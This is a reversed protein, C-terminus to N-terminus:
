VAAIAVGIATIIEESTMCANGFHQPLAACIQATAPDGNYNITFTDEVFNVNGPNGLINAIRHKWHIQAVLNLNNPPCYTLTTIETSGLDALDHTLAQQMQNACPTNTLDTCGNSQFTGMQNAISTLTLPTGPNTIITKELIWITGTDPRYLVLHDPKGTSNYDFAFVRDATSKLDYGGIGNGPDGQNYVPSFSGHSNKLIWITGTGPRYLALHDLKGSGDYDFAFARDAASKLDFGGIGNGPDGQNYVPSFNGHSNKLIWITGTGPRYLALHDLKGSGDYDFAFIRDATSKLDFGGIGNGPDGQQYVPSFNGHSNKLIWVTGTGPRYLVLHDLKGSGDYDFAFARDAASKLDFGGIGNGLDGPQYVPSFNGHSNKLIWIIGTGPRYLVLHDLKGSGDYDFVFTRDAAYKLDFGGIGNGPDGQKPDGQKYVPKYNISVATQGTRAQTEASVTAATISVVFLVILLIALVKKIRISSQKLM